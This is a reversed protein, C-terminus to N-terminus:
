AKLGPRHEFFDARTRQQITIAALLRDVFIRDDIRQKADALHHDIKRLDCLKVDVGKNYVFLASTSHRQVHAQHEHGIAKRM